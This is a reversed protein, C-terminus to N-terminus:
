ENKIGGIANKIKKHYLLLMGIGRSVGKVTAGQRAHRDKRKGM